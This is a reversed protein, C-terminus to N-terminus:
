VDHEKPSSSRLRCPAPRRAGFSPKLSLGEHADAPILDGRVAHAARVGNPGSGPYHMVRTKHRAADVQSSGDAVGGGGGLSGLQRSAMPSCGRDMVLSRVQGTLEEIQRSIEEAAHETSGCRHDLRHLEKTMALLAPSGAESDGM